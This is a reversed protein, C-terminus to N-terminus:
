TSRRAIPVRFTRPTAWPRVTTDLSSDWACSGGPPRNDRPDDNRNVVMEVWNGPFFYPADGDVTTIIDQLVNASVTLDVICFKSDQGATNWRPMDRLDDHLQGFWQQDICEFIVHFYPVGKSDEREIDRIYGYLYEDYVVLADLDGHNNVQLVDKTFCM